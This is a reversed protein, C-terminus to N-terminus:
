GQKLRAIEATLLGGFWQATQQVRDLDGSAILDLVLGRAITLLSTAVRIQHSEPVGWEQALAGLLPLYAHISNNAFDGYLEPQKAALGILEFYVAMVRQYEASALRQSMAAIFSEPSAREAASLQSMGQRLRQGIERVIEARLQQVTGFYHILMRPSVGAALAFTNVSQVHMGHQSVHGALTSLLKERKDENSKRAM